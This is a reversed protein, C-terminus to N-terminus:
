QPKVEKVVLYLDDVYYTGAEPCHIFLFRGNPDGDYKLDRTVTEWKGTKRGNLSQWMQQYNPLIWTNIFAAPTAPDVWVKYRYTYKTGSKLTIPAKESTFTGKGSVANIM